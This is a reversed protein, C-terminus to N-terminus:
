ASMLDPHVQPMISQLYGILARMVTGSVNCQVVSSFIYVSQLDLCSHRFLVNM